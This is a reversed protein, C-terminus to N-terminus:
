PDGLGLELPPGAAVLGPLLVLLVPIPAEPALGDEPADPVAVGGLVAAEAMPAGLEPEPVLPLPGLELPADGESEPEVPPPEVPLPVPEPVGGDRQRM